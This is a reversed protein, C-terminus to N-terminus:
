AITSYSLPSVFSITAVASALINILFRCYMFIENSGIVKESDCEAIAKLKAVVKRIALLM